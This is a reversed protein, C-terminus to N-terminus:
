RLLYTQIYRDVHSVLSGGGGVNRTQDIGDVSWFPDKTAGSVFLSAVAENRSDIQVPISVVYRSGTSRVNASYPQGLLVDHGHLGFPKGVLSYVHELEKQHPEALDVGLLSRGKPYLTPPQLQLQKKFVNFM